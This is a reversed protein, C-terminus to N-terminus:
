IVIGLIPLLYFRGPDWQPQLCKIPQTACHYDVEKKQPQLNSDLCHLISKTREYTACYTEM